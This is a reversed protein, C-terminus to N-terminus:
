PGMGFRKVRRLPFLRQRARKVVTKIRKSWSLENTNHVGLFKFREVQELIAGDILIPVHEAMRKRYDAIMEKTKILNLSLNIDQCRV